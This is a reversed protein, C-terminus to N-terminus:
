GSRSRSWGTGPCNVVTPFRGVIWPLGSAGPARGKVSISPWSCSRCLECLARVPTNRGPSVTADSRCDPKSSRTRSWAPSAATGRTLKSPFPPVRMALSRAAAVSSVWSRSLLTPVGSSTISCAVPSFFTAGPGASTKRRAAKVPRSFSTCCRACASCPVARSTDLAVSVIGSRAVAKRARAAAARSKAVPLSDGAISRSSAARRM